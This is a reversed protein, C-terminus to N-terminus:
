PSHFQLPLYKPNDCKMTEMELYKIAFILTRVSPLPSVAMNICFTKRFLYDLNTEGVNEEGMHM